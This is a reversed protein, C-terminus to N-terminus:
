GCVNDYTITLTNSPITLTYSTTGIKEVGDTLLSSVTPSDIRFQEDYTTKFISGNPFRNGFFGDKKIYFATNPDVGYNSDLSRNGPYSVGNSITVTPLARSSTTGGAGLGYFSIEVETYSEFKMFDIVHNYSKVKGKASIKDSTIQITKDLSINPLLKVQCRVFNDRHSKLIETKAKDIAAQINSQAISENFSANVTKSQNLTITQNNGIDISSKYGDNSDWVSSDYEDTFSYSSKRDLVGFVAQSTSSGISLNYKKVAQQSFRKSLIFSASSAHIGSTDQSSLTSTTIVNRGNSDTQASGDTGINLSTTYKKIDGLWLSGNIWGASPLEGYTPFGKLTWGCGSIAAYIAEKLTLSYGSQLVLAFNTGNSQYPAQWTYLSEVYHLKTFSYNVSIDVKNVIRGRAVQEITPQRRYISANTLTIDATSKPAWSTYKYNNYADFDLSYPAYPLLEEILDDNSLTEDILYSTNYASGFLNLPNNIAKMLEKRKNTATITTVNNLVDFDAVDVIGTFQRYLIGNENMMSIKLEKGFYDNLQQVGSGPRLDFTASAASDEEFGITMRGTLQNDPIQYGGLFVEVNFKYKALKTAATTPNVKQALEILTGSANTKVSQEIDVLTGSGSLRLNIDQEINILTGLGIIAVSQEVDVLTGSTQLRVSQEISVLTGSGTISIGSAAITGNFPKTNFASSNFTM